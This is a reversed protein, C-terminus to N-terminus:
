LAVLDLALGLTSKYAELPRACPPWHAEEDRGVPIEQREQVPSRQQACRSIRRARERSRHMAVAGRTDPAGYRLPHLECRGQALRPRTLRTCNALSPTWSLGRSACRGSSHQVGLTTRSIANSVAFCGATISSDMTVPTLVPWRKLQFLLLSVALGHGVVLVAFEPQREACPVLPCAACNPLTLELVRRSPVGLLGFSPRAPFCYIISLARRRLRM